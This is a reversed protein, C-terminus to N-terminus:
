MEALAELLRGENLSEKKPHNWIGNIINARALM